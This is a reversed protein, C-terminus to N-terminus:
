TLTQEPSAVESGFSTWGMGPMSPRLPQGQHDVTHVCSIIKCIYIYIHITTRRSVKLTWCQVATSMSFPHSSSSALGLHLYRGALVAPNGHWFFELCPLVSPESQCLLLGERPISCPCIVACFATDLQFPEKCSSICFVHKYLIAAVPLM